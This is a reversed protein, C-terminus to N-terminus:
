NAQGAHARFVVQGGIDVTDVLGIVVTDIPLKETEPTLRASSGQCILVMEGEGAGLTDVAVFTRGTGILRDRAKDDVRYPEVTLLKHGTMSAVKQTAVVSGTVRALFM